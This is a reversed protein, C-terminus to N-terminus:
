LFVCRRNMDRGAGLEETVIHLSISHVIIELHHVCWWRTDNVLEVGPVRPRSNRRRLRPAYLASRDISLVHADRRRRRPLFSVPPRWATQGHKTDPATGAGRRPQRKKSTWSRGSSFDIRPWKRSGNTTVNARATSWWWGEPVVDFPHSRYGRGGRTHKSTVTEWGAVQWRLRTTEGYARDDHFSGRHLSAQGSRLSRRTDADLSHALTTVSTDNRRYSIPTIAVDGLSRGVHNLLVRKFHILVLTRSTSDSLYDTNNASRKLSIKIIPYVSYKYYKSSCVLIANWHLIYM